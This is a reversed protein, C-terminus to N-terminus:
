SFINKACYSRNFPSILKCLDFEKGVTWKRVLSPLQKLSTIGIEDWNMDEGPRPVRQHANHALQVLSHIVMVSTM